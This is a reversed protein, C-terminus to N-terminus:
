RKGTLTLPVVRSHCRETLDVHRVLVIWNKTAFQGAAVQFRYQRKRLTAEIELFRRTEVGDDEVAQGTIVATFTTLPIPVIGETTEKNWILGGPTAEYPYPEAGAPPGSSGPSAPPLLHGLKDLLRGDIVDPNDGTIGAIRKVVRTRFKEENLDARDRFGGNPDALSM